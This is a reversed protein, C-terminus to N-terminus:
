CRQKKIENFFEENYDNHWIIESNFILDVHRDARFEKWTSDKMLHWIGECNEVIRIIEEIPENMKFLRGYITHVYTIDNEKKLLHQMKILYLFYFYNNGKLESSKLYIFLTSKLRLQLHIQPPKFTYHFVQRKRMGYGCSISLNVRM